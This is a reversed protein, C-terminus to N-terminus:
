QVGTEQLQGRFLNPKGSAQLIGHLLFELGVFFLGGLLTNRTLAKV